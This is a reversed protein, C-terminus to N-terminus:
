HVEEKRFQFLQGDAEGSREGRAGRQAARFIVVGIECKVPLKCSVVPLQSGCSDWEQPLHRALVCSWSELPMQM